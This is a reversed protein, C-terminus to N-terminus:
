MMQCKCTEVSANISTNVDLLKFWLGHNQAHQSVFLLTNPFKYKFFNVPKACFGRNLFIILTLFFPFIPFIAIPTELPFWPSKEVLKILVPIHCWNSGYRSTGDLNVKDQLNHLRNNIFEIKDINYFVDLLSLFYTHEEWHHAKLQANLGPLQNPVITSNKNNCCCGKQERKFKFIKM